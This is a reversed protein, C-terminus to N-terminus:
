KYVIIIILLDRLLYYMARQNIEIYNLINKFQYPKLIQMCEKNLLSGLLDELMLNNKSTHIKNDKIIQYLEDILLKM